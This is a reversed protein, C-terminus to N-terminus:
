FQCVLVCQLTCIEAEPDNRCASACENFQGGIQECTEKDIGECEKSEPLWTGGSSICGGESEPIVEVYTTDEHRCQRPYSEMVPNGAAVCEKFNSVQLAPPEQTPTSCATLALLAIITLTIKKM